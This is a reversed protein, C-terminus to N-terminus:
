LIPIRFFRLSIDRLRSVFSQCRAFKVQQAARKLGVGFLRSQWVGVAM